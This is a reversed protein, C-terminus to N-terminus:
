NDTSDHPISAISHKRGQAGPVVPLQQNGSSVAQTMSDAPALQHAYLLGGAHRHHPSPFFGTRDSMCMLHQLFQADSRTRALGMNVDQCSSCQWELPMNVSLSDAHVLAFDLCRCCSGATSSPWSHGRAAMCGVFLRLAASWRDMTGIVHQSAPTPKADSNGSPHQMGEALWPSTYPMSPSELELCRDSTLTCALPLSPPSPSTSPPTSSARQALEKWCMLWRTPWAPLPNAPSADCCTPM